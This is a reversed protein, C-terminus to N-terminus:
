TAPREQLSQAHATESHPAYKELVSILVHADPSTAVHRQVIEKTTLPKGYLKENEEKNQRVVPVNARIEEGYPSHFFVQYHSGASPGTRFRATEFNRTKIPRSANQRWTPLFLALSLLSVLIQEGL